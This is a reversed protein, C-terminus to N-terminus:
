YRHEDCLSETVPFVALQQNRVVQGIKKVISRTRIRLYGPFHQLKASNLTKLVFNTAYDLKLDFHVVYIVKLVTNNENVPFVTVNRKAIKEVFLINLQHRIMLDNLRKMM